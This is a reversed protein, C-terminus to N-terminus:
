EISSCHIERWSRWTWRSDSRGCNPTWSRSVDLALFAAAQGGNIEHICVAAAVVWGDTWWMLVGAGINGERERAWRQVARKAATTDDLITSRVVSEKGLGLWNIDGITRGYDHVYCMNVGSSLPYSLKSSIAWRGKVWSKHNIMVDQQAYTNFWCQYTINGNYIQSTLWELFDWVFGLQVVNWYGVVPILDVSNPLEPASLLSWFKVSHSRVNLSGTNRSLTIVM